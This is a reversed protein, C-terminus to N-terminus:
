QILDKALMQLDAPVAIGLRRATKLNFHLDYGAPGEFPMNEPREGRFIRAIMAVTRRPAEYGTAAPTARYVFMIGERSVNALEGSYSLVLRHELAAGTVAEVLQPVASHFHAAVCGEHRLRAMERKTKEFAPSDSADVVVPRVRIGMDRALSEFHGFWELQPRFAIWGISSLGPVLKRLFEIRKTNVDAFGGHMGTINGGPRALSKAFGLAVPDGENINTVIPITRTAEHVYRTFNAAATRICDPQWRVAEAAFRPVVESWSRREPFELWNIEFNSGLRYGVAEFARIYDIKEDPDWQPMVVALRKIARDTAPYAATGALALAALLLNRRGSSITRDM